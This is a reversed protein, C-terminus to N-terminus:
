TGNNVRLNIINGLSTVGLMLKEKDIGNITRVYHYGDSSLVAQDSLLKNTFTNSIRIDQENCYKLVFREAEESVEIWCYTLAHNLIKILAQKAIAGFRVDASFASIKLGHRDKCIILAVVQGEVLGVQWQATIAILEEISSFHLGGKVKAYSVLLRKWVEKAYELKQSPTILCLIRVDSHRYLQSRTKKM